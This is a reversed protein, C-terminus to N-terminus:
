PAKKQRIFQLSLRDYEIPNIKQKTLANQQM